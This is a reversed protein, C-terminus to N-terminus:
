IILQEPLHIKKDPRFTAGFTLQGIRAIMLERNECQNKFSVGDM